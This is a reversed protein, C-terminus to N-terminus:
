GYLMWLGGILCVTDWAAYVFLVATIIDLIMNM